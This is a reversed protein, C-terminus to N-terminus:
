FNLHNSVFFFSRMIIKTIKGHVDNYFFSFFKTALLREYQTLFYKLLHIKCMKKKENKINRSRMKLTM